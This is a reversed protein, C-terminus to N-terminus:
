RITKKTEEDEKPFYDGSLILKNFALNKIIAPKRDRYFKKIFAFRGGKSNVDFTNPCFAEKLRSAPEILLDM